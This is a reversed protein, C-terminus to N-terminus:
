ASLLIKFPNFVLRLASASRKSPIEAPAPEQILVEGTEVPFASLMIELEWFLQALEVHNRFNCWQVKHTIHYQHQPQYHQQVTQSLHPM